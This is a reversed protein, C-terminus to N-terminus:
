NNEQFVITDKTIEIKNKKCWNKLAKETLFYYSIEEKEDLYCWLDKDEYKDFNEIPM